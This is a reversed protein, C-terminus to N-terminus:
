NAKFKFINLSFRKFSISCIKPVGVYDKGRKLIDSYAVKNSNFMLYYPIESGICVIIEFSIYLLYIIYCINAIPEGELSGSSNNYRM